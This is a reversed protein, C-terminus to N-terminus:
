RLSSEERPLGVAIGREYDLVSTGHVEGPIVNVRREEEYINNGAKTWPVLPPSGIRIVTVDSDSSGPEEESEEEGRSFSLRM